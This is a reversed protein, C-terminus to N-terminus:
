EPVEPYNIDLWVDFGISGHEHCHILHEDHLDVIRQRTFTRPPKPSISEGTYFKHQFERIQTKLERTLGDISNITLHMRNLSPNGIEGREAQPEPDSPLWSAFYQRILDAAETASLDGVATVVVSSDRGIPKIVIEQGWVEVVSKFNVM